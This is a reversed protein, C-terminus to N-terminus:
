RKLAAQSHQVDILKNHSSTLIKKNEDKIRQKQDVLGTLQRNLPNLTSEIQLLESSHKEIQKIIEQQRAKMQSLAQVGEQLKIQEDKLKNRKDRLTNLMKSSNDYKDELASIETNTKKYETTITAKKSQAEDMTMTSSRQPVKSKLIVLEQQIRAVDKLSEDLVSMDGLMINALDINSNPEAISIQLTEADNMANSLREETEKLKEKNKPIDTKLLDLRITMPQISLLQEM